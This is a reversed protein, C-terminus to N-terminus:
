FEFYGRRDFIDLLLKMQKICEPHSYLKGSDNAREDSVVEIFGGEFSENIFRLGIIFLILLANYFDTRISEIQIELLTPIRGPFRLRKLYTVLKSHYYQILHERDEWGISSHASGYLLRVLDNSPTAHQGM